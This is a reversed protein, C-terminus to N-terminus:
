AKPKTKGENAMRFLQAQAAAAKNSGLAAVFSDKVQTTTYPFRTHAMSNLLAATGERCLQGLGDTRTNSLAQLINTNPGFGPLSSVGFASGVTTGWWGFLGWILTPHNRWYTCNFPPSNPDFSFPPSPITIGPTSTTPPSHHSSIGGAGGTPPSPTTHHHGGSSSPPKGCNTAPPKGGSHSPTPTPTPHGGGSGHPPPVIPLNPVTPPTHPDPIYYNKQDEFSAAAVVCLMAGMAAWLLLRARRSTTKAEM